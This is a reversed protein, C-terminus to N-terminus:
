SKAPCRFRKKSQWYLIGAFLAIYLFDEPGSEPLKEKPSIKGNKSYSLSLGGPVQHSPSGSRELRTPAPAPASKVYPATKEYLTKQGDGLLASSNLSADPLLEGASAPKLFSLGGPVQHSPGVSREPRSTLVDAKLDTTDQVWYAIYVAFAVMFFAAVIKLKAGISITEQENEIETEIKTKLSTGGYRSPETNAESRSPRFSLGGPVQHSPSGSRELRNSRFFNLLSM